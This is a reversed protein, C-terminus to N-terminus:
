RRVSATAAPAGARELQLRAAATDGRARLMNAYRERFHRNAPHDALARRYMADASAFDGLRQAGTAVLDAARLSDPALLYAALANGMMSQWRRQYFRVDALRLYGWAMTPDLRIASDLLAAATDLRELMMASEAGGLYPTADLTFLRRAIRFSQDADSWNNTLLYINGATVHARYSEPQARMQNIVLTKNNQWIPTRTWARVAFAVALVTALVLALRPRETWARAFLWGAVVAVGVTPLYLTREALVVGTPFLVNSVPSMAICFLLIGFAVAPARRWTLWIAAVALAVLFAGLAIAPTLHTALDIVRPTYDVKLEMPALILRACEPVVRLMTLWREPATARTWTPAPVVLNQHRFLLLLLGAYLATVLGYCDYLWRRSALARRWPGDFLLDHTVALALFVVGTEKSALALAYWLVASWHRRRHALWAALVFVTAMLELRGVINSVAEVHVPHVAFLIAGFWAGAPPLMTSLVRWVLVCVLAHWGINVLHFWWPQGHAIAWDISFMAIPLPRYQGGNGDPWYAHAYARWIGTLSHVLPNTAIIGIDDLAFGNRVANAYCVVAILVISAPVWVSQRAGIAQVVPSRMHRAAASGTPQLAAASM